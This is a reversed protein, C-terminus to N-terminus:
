FGWLTKNYTAEVQQETTNPLNHFFDIGTLEELQDITVLNASLNSREASTYGRHELWLGIADYTGYRYRLFAMFYYKPVRVVMNNSRVVNGMTQGSRITGGKVVYVTDAFTADRCKNRFKNEYNAWIDANFENLQPSMNTMYFTQVNAEISWVRDASACLHGRDYGNFYNSGIWYNTPLLPDDTFPENSRSTVQQRTIGDFRFAVWRSHMASPAFELCYNMVKRNGYDAEHSIFIGDSTALRPVELRSTYSAPDSNTTGGNDGDENIIIINPEEDDDSGCAFFVSLTILLFFPKWYNINM